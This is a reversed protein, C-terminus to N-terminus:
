PLVEGATATCNNVPSWPPAAAGSSSSSLVSQLLDFGAVYHVPTEQEPQKAKPQIRWVHLRTQVQQIDALAVGDVKGVIEGYKNSIVEGTDTNIREVTYVKLPMDKRLACVGGQLALYAGWDGADAAQRAQELLGDPATDLRRLERWVGVPAGGIQQFQRIGWHSAWARVRQASDAADTGGEFDEDVGYGNINKSVYKAIYGTASGKSSDIAVAKFRYQAAGPENGDELLAYHQIIATVGAQQAPPAFLLMHWHPCGDHHPEAVRFGYATLGDRKLKSRIRAWLATLYAQAQRPTSGAYNPNDAPKGTDKDVTFRHYKSPCTLTYFTGIHGAQTAANEFGRMRVMLEVRRVEPNAVSGKLVTLMDVTEGTEENIAELAAMAKLSSAIRAQLTQFAADSVYLGRGRRVIGLRIAFAEQQRDQQRTLQRRWFDADSLRAILGTSDYAGLAAPDFGQSEYMALLAAHAQAPATALRATKRCQLALREAKRKIDDDSLTFGRVGTQETLNLLYLNANRRKEGDHAGATRFRQAYERAIVAHHVAPLQQFQQAIWGADHPHHHTPAHMM